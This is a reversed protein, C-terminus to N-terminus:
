NNKGWVNKKRCAEIGMITSSAEEANMLREFHSKWVGKVKKKSRVLMGFDRKMRLGM